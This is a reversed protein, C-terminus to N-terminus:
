NTYVKADPDEAKVVQNTKGRKCLLQINTLEVSCSGVVLEFNSLTIDNKSKSTGTIRVLQKFM